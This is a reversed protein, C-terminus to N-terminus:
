PAAKTQAPTVTQSAGESRKFVRKPRADGSAFPDEMSLTGNGDGLSFEVERDPLSGGGKRTEGQPKGGDGTALVMAFGGERIGHFRIRQGKESV